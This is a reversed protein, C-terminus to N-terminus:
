GAQACRTFAWLWRNYVALALWTRDPESVEPLRERLRSLYLAGGHISQKADLPQCNQARQRHTLDADDHRVGTFSKANPNWHSEQYSMAALLRWDFNHNSGAGVFHAKYKDLKLNAQQAFRSAGM